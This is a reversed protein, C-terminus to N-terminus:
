RPRLLADLMEFILILGVVLLVPGYLLIPKM